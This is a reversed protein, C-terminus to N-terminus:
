VFPVELVGGAQSRQSWGGAGRWGRWAGLCVACAAFLLLLVPSQNGRSKKKKKIHTGTNAKESKSQNWLDAASLSFFSFFLSFFGMYLLGGPSKIVKKKKKKSYLLFIQATTESEHKPNLFADLPTPAAHLFLGEARPHVRHPRPHLSGADQVGARGSLPLCAGRGRGAGRGPACAAQLAAGRPCRREGKCWCFAPEPARSVATLKAYIDGTLYKDRKDRLFTKKKILCCCYYYYYDLFRRTESPLFLHTKIERAEQRRASSPSKLVINAASKTKLDGFSVKRRRYAGLQARTYGFYIERGRKRIRTPILLRGEEGGILLSNKYLKRSSFNLEFGRRLVAAM